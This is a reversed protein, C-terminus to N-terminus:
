RKNEGKGEQSTKYQNWAINPNQAFGVRLSTMCFQEHSQFVMFIFSMRSNKHLRNCEDQVMEQRKKDQTSLSFGSSFNM